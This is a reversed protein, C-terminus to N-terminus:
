IINYIMRSTHFAFDGVDRPSIMIVYFIFTGQKGGISKSYYDLAKNIGQILRRDTSYSSYWEGLFYYLVPHKCGKEEAESFLKFPVGEFKYQRIGELFLVNARGLKVSSEDILRRVSHTFPRREYKHDLMAALCTNLAAEQENIEICGSAGDQCDLKPTTLSSSKSETM